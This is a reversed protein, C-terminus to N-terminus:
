DAGESQTGARETALLLAAGRSVVSDGAKLPLEAFYGGDLPRDLVIPRREFQDNATRVYCWAQSQYAVVAESPVLVGRAPASDGGLNARVEVGPRLWTAAPVITLWTEGPIRTAAAPARWVHATAIGPQASLLPAIHVPRRASVAAGVPLELQVIASTGRALREVTASREAASLQALGAGWEANWRRALLVRKSEEVQYATTALELSEQSANGDDNVLQQTRQLVARATLLQSANAESDAALQLLGALDLVTGFGELQPTFEAPALTSFILGLRQQATTDIVVGSGSATVASREAATSSAPKDRDHGACGFTTVAILCCWTRYYIRSM